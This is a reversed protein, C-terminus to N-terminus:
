RSRPRPCLRCYIMGEEQVFMKGLDKLNLKPLNQISTQRKPTLNPNITTSTSPSTVSRLPSILATTTPRVATGAPPPTPERQLKGDKQTANSKFTVALPVDVSEPDSEVGSDSEIDMDCEGRSDPESLSGARSPSPRIQSSSRRQYHHGVEVLTEGSESKDSNASSRFTSAFSETESVRRRKSERRGTYEEHNDPDHSIVDALSHANWLGADSKLHILSSLDHSPFPSPSRNSPTFFLRRGSIPPPPPSSSQTGQTFYSDSFTPYSNKLEPDDESQLRMCSPSAPTDTSSNPPTPLASCAEVDTDSRSRKLNRRPSQTSHKAILRQNELEKIRLQQIAFDREQNMVLMQAKLLEMQRRENHLMAYCTSKYQSIDRLIRHYAQDLLSYLPSSLSPQTSEFTSTPSSPVLGANNRQQYAHCYPHPHQIIARRYRGPRLPNAPITLTPCSLASPAKQISTTPTSTVSPQRPPTQFNTLGPNNAPLPQPSTSPSEPQSIGPASIAQYLSLPFSLGSFANSRVQSPIRAASSTNSANHNVQLQFFILAYGLSYFTM